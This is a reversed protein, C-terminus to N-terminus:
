LGKMIKDRDYEYPQKLYGYRIGYAPLLLNSLSGVLTTGLPTIPNLLARSLLSGSLGSVLGSGIVGAPRFDVGYRSKNFLQGTFNGLASGLGIAAPNGSSILGGILGGLTTSINTNRTAREANINMKNIIDSKLAPPTVAWISERIPKLFMDSYKNKKILSKDLM